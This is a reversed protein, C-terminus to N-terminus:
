NEMKDEIRRSYDCVAQTMNALRPIPAEYKRGYSREEGRDAYKYNGLIWLEMTTLTYIGKRPNGAATKATSRSRNRATLRNFIKDAFFQLQEKRVQQTAQALTIQNEIIRQRVLSQYTVLDDFVRIDTANVAKYNKFCLDFETMVYCLMVENANAAEVFALEQMRILEEEGFLLYTLIQKWIGDSLLNAMMEKCHRMKERLEEQESHTESFLNSFGEVLAKVQNVLTM